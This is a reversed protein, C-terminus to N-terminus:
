KVMHTLEFVKANVEPKMNFLLRRFSLGTSNCMVTEGRGRGFVSKESKESGRRVEEKAATVVVVAM